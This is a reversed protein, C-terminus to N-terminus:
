GGQANRDAGASSGHRYVNVLLWAALTLVAQQVIVAIINGVSSGCDTSFVNGFSVGISIASYHISIGVVLIAAVTQFNNRKIKRVWTQPQFVDWGCVQAVLLVTALGGTALIGAWTLEVNFAEKAFILVAVYAGAVLGWALAKAIDRLPMTINSKQLPPQMAWRCIGCISSVMATFAAWLKSM